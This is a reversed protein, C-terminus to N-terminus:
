GTLPIWKAMYYFYGAFFGALAIGFALISAMRSAGYKLGHHFTKKGYPKSFPRDEFERKGDHLNEAKPM